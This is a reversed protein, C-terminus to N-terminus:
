TCCKWRHPPMEVLRYMTEVENGTFQGAQRSELTLAGYCRNM